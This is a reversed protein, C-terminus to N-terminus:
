HWSQSRPQSPDPLYPVNLDKVIGFPVHGRQTGVLVALWMYVINISTYHGSVM